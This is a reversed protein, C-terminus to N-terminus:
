CLIFLIPFYCSSPWARTTGRTLQRTNLKRLWGLKQKREKERREGDRLPKMQTAISTKVVDVHEGTRRKRVCGAHLVEAAKVARTLGIKEDDRCAMLFCAKERAPCGEPRCYFVLRVEQLSYRSYCWCLSM